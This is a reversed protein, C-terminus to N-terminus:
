ANLGQCGTIFFSRVRMNLIPEAAVCLVTSVTKVRGTNIIIKHGNEKAKLLARKASEPFTHRKDLTILTGDIDFFLLASM